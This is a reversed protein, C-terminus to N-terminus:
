PLAKGSRSAAAVMGAFRGTPKPNPNAGVSTISRFQSVPGADGMLAGAVSLLGTLAHRRRGSLWIRWEIATGVPGSVDRRPGILDVVSAQGKLLEAVFFFGSVQESAQHLGSSGRQLILRWCCAFGCFALIGWPNAVCDGVVDGTKSVQAELVRCGCFGFKALSGFQARVKQACASHEGTKLLAEQAGDRLTLSLKALRRWSDTWAFGERFNPRFLCLRIFFEGQAM